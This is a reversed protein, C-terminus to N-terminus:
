GLRGCVTMRVIGYMYQVHLTLSPTCMIVDCREGDGRCVDLSVNLLAHSKGLVDATPHGVEVGQLWEDGSEVEVRVM